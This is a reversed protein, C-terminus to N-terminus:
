FIIIECDTGTKPGGWQFELYIGARLKLATQLWLVNLFRRWYAQLIGLTVSYRVNLQAWLLFYYGRYVVSTLNFSRVKYNNYLM